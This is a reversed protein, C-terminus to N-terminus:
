TIIGLRLHGLEHAIGHLSRTLRESLRIERDSNLEVVALVEDGDIAPV